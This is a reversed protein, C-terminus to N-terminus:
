WQSPPLGTRWQAEMFQEACEYAKKFEPDGLSEDTIVPVQAKVVYEGPNIACADARILGLKGDKEVVAYANELDRLAKKFGDMGFLMEPSATEVAEKTSVATGGGNIQNKQSM